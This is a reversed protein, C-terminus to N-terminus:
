ESRVRGIAEKENRTRTGTHMGHGTEGWWPREGGRLRVFPELRGLGLQLVLFVFEDVHAVGVVVAEAAAVVV